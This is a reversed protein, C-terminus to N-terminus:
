IFLILVRSKVPYKISFDITLRIVGVMAIMVGFGDV